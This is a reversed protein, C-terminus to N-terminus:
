LLQQQLETSCGTLLAAYRSSNDSATAAAAISREESYQLLWEASIVLLLIATDYWVARRCVLVAELLRV